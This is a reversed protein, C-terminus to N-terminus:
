PTVGFSALFAQATPTDIRYSFGTGKCNDNKVFSHIAVIVDTDEFFVPGGSDGFCIGSRDRGPNATTQLNFGDTWASRLNVLSSIGTYRAVDTLLRPRIGQEGYGVHTFYLDDQGRQTAVQDLVGEEAIRAPTIGLIGAIDFAFLVVGIDATDPFTLGFSPNTIPTGPIILFPPGESFSVWASYGGQEIFDTCHGATLFVSPAVLTGSCLAFFQNGIQVILLGVNPHRGEDPTGYTIAGVSVAMSAAVVLALVIRRM